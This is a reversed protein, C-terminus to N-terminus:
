PKVSEPCSLMRAQQVVDAVTKGSANHCSNLFERQSGLVYTNEVFRCDGTAAVRSWGALRQAAKDTNDLQFLVVEAPHQNINVLHLQYNDACNLTILANEQYLQQMSQNFQQREHQQIRPEIVVLFGVKLVVILGALMFAGRLWKPYNLLSAFIAVLCSLSGGYFFVPILWRAIASQGGLGAALFLYFLVGMLLLALMMHWAWRM